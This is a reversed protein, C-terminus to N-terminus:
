ASQDLQSEIELIGETKGWITFFIATLTMIIRHAGQSSMVAFIDDPLGFRNRLLYQLEGEKYARFQRCGEALRHIIEKQTETAPEGHTTPFSHARSLFDLAKGIDDIQCDELRARGMILCLVDEATDMRIDATYAWFALMAKLLKIVRQHRVADSAMPLRKYKGTPKPALEEVMRNFAEIYRLKWALAKKGTFGMALLDFGDRTMMYSPDERTGGTLPIEIIEVTPEFNASAWEKPLDKLLNKIDRLVNNHQRGFHKAVQLSSAMPKDHEVTLEIPQV